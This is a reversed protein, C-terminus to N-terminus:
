DETKLSIVVGLMESGRCAGVDPSTGIWFSETPVAFGEEDTEMTHLPTAAYILSGYDGPAVPHHCWQCVVAKM